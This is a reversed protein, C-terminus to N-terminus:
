SVLCYAFSLLELILIGTKMTSNTIHTFTNGIMFAAAQPSLPWPQQGM